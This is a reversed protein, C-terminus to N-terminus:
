ATTRRAAERSCCRLLLVRGCCPSGEVLLQANTVATAVTHGEGKVKQNLPWHM